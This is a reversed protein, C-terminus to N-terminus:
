IKSWICCLLVSYLSFGNLWVFTQHLGSRFICQIHTLPFFAFWFSYEWLCVLYSALSWVVLNCNLKEEHLVKMLAITTSAAWCSELVQGIQSREFFCIDRRSAGPTKVSSTYTVLVASRCLFLEAGSRGLHLPKTFSGGLYLVLCHRQSVM